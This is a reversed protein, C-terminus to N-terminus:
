KNWVRFRAVKLVRYREAVVQLVDGGSIQTVDETSNDPRARERAETLILEVDSEVDTVIETFSFAPDPVTMLPYAVMETFNILLFHRGDSRLEQQMSLKGIVREITDRILLAISRYQYNLESGPRSVPLEFLRQQRSFYTYDDSLLRFVRIFQADM